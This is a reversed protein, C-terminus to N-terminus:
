LAATSTASHKIMTTKYCISLLREREARRALWCSPEWIRTSVVELALMDEARGPTRRGGPRAPRGKGPAGLHGMKGGRVAAMGQKRGQLLLNEGDVIGVLAGGAHDVDGPAEQHAGAGGISVGADQGGLGKGEEAVHSSEPQNM